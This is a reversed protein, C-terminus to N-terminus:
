ADIELLACNTAPLAQCLLVTGATLGAQPAVAYSVAGLQIPVRCTGCQGIRCSSALPLGHSIGLDLLSECGPRWVVIRGSRAFTVPVPATARDVPLFPLTSDRRLGAPGFSEAFIREDQVGLGRLGVYMSQMFEPPGCLYIDATELPVAASLQRSDLRGVVEFDVGEVSEQSPASMLRVVHAAGRSASVLDSVERDFARAAQNRAGHVFWTTRMRGTRQSEHVLHRLMSIMPTIGVGASALVLPRAEEASLTFSGRPTRLEVLHGKRIRDHLTSSVLGERKVSIRLLPDHPASSLTYLREETYDGERMPIRIPIHQGATYSPLSSANVPSLVFSSIDQSEATVTAVRFPQWQDSRDTESVRALATTWSGTALSNPSPDGSAFRLPLVGPRFVCRRVDVHWVREAGSFAAGVASDFDITVDGTLQLLDGSTFNVFVLGARPVHVFNGLTNFYRNGSFDPISLRGAVVRVFGPKGGRHSVDVARLGPGQRDTYSAVFFTDATEIFSRMADNLEAAVTVPGEWLAAPDRSFTVDRAYIYQPCNGFSQQVRLAAGGATVHALQGNTRIRRRTLLDIGLVAVHAGDTWGAGAPDDRQPHGGIHLQTADPSRLFGPLGAIVTAWPDGADDVTGFVAYPLQEYFTRHSELLFSIIARTGLPEMQGQVGAQRRIAREGDHWPTSVDFPPLESM